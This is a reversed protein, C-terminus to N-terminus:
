NVRQAVWSCTLKKNMMEALRFFSAARRASLLLIDLREIETAKCDKGPRAFLGLFRHFSGGNETPLDV